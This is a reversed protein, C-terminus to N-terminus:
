FNTQILLSEIDISRILSKKSPVHLNSGVPLFRPITLTEQAEYYRGENMFIVCFYQKTM